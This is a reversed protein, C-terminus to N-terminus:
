LYLERLVGFLGEIIGSQYDFDLEEIYNESVYRLYIIYIYVQSTYQIFIDSICIIYIYGAASPCENIIPCM